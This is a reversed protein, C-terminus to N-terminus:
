PTLTLYDKIKNYRVEGIGKVEKLEELTEFFGYKNRYEIIERALKPTIGKIGILDEYGAQNLNVKLADEDIKIFKAAASNVKLAFNVGLGVLAVMILFLVVQREQRTLDFM